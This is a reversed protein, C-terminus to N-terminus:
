TNRGLRSSWWIKYSSAQAKRPSLMPLKSGKSAAEKMVPSTMHHLKIGKQVTHNSSSPKIRSRPTLVVFSESDLESSAEKYTAVSSAQVHDPTNSAGSDVATSPDTHSQNTPTVPTSAEESIGPPPGSTLRQIMSRGHMDLDRLREEVLGAFRAEFRTIIRAQLRVELAEIARELHVAIRAEIATESHAAARAEIFDQLSDDVTTSAPQAYADIRAELADLRQGLLGLPQVAHNGQQLANVRQQLRSIELDTRTLDNALDRSIDSNIEGYTRIAEDLPLQRFKNLVRDMIVRQSSQTETAEEPPASKINSLHEDCGSAPHMGAFLRKREAQLKAWSEEILRREAEFAPICHAPLDDPM